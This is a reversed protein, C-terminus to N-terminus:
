ARWRRRAATSARDAIGPKAARRSQLVGLPSGSQGSVVQQTSIEINRIHRSMAQAARDPDHAIIAGAIESHDATSQSIMGPYKRARRDFNQFDLGLNYLAYAIRGLVANGAIVSIREHFRADLMRFGVPDDQVTEHADIIDKLEDVDARDARRAARRVIEIEVVRRSDFADAINAKTLSIYFDLPALLTKADLDSVYAGGGHLSRIVGLTSLARLAERLSPRSIDFIEILEREPPLRNGARLTGTRILELIRSVVQQGVARKEIREMRVATLDTAKARKGM